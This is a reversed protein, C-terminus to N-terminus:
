KKLGFAKVMGNISILEEMIDKIDKLAISNPGDCLANDPDHHVEMFVGDVGIAASARALHRAMGRDGGSSAGLGGPSQVSHTADFIVPYGAQRIMPIARFDVVLNNYGFSVGRETITIDHNGAAEAKKASHLVDMPAMFQGKKINIARGTKSAETILDTQRSLFAPIQIIDAVEAVSSVETRCHVDTLIPVNFLRKAKKLVKLGEKIGPGRYSKVSTRNAKDYSSKFIFPAKLGEAAKILGELTRLTEKEGEIVCPGMIFVLPAGPGILFDKIKVRRM